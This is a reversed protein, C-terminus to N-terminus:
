YLVLGSGNRQSFDAMVGELRVTGSEVFVLLPPCLRTRRDKNENQNMVHDIVNANKKETTVFTVDAKLLLTVNSFRDNTLFRTKQFHM